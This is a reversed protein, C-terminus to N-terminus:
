AARRKRKASASNGKLISDAWSREKRTLPGGTRELALGLMAGWGAVDALSVSVAHKIFGSLTDAKGTAVLARIAELQKEDLTITVKKTAM